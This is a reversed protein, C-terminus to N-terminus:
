PAIPPHPPAPSPPPHPAPRTLDFPSREPVHPPAVRPTVHPPPPPPNPRPSLLHPTPGGAEVNGDGMDVGRVHATVKIRHLHANRISRAGVLNQEREHHRGPRPHM